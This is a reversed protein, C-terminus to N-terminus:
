AAVEKKRAERLRENEDRLQKIEEQAYDFYRGQEVYLREYEILSMSTKYGDAKLKVIESDMRKIQRQLLRIYEMDKGILFDDIWRGILGKQQAM